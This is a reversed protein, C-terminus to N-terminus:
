KKAPKLPKGTYPDYKQVPEEQPKIVPEQVQDNKENDFPLEEPVPEEPEQPKPDLFEVSDAIVEYVSAKSGDKRLYSRQQISGVVAVKSGKRLHKAVNDAINGFCVLGLFTTGRTGDPNTRPNDVAIDTSAVHTANNLVRLEPDRTIRGLLVLNNLM